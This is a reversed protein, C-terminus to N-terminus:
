VNHLGWRLARRVLVASEAVLALLAFAALFLELPRVQRSEGSFGQQSAIPTEARGMAAPNATLDSESADFYNAYVDVTRARSEVRYHGAEVARLRVRGWQDARITSVSGDPNMVKAGSPAPVTLEDGTAVIRINAPMALRRVVDVAAVLVQLRDPDLLLHNRVDFAIVGVQGREWDGVAALPFVDSQGSASANVTAKMWAPLSVIRAAFPAAPGPVAETEELPSRLEFSPVVGTVRFGAPLGQINAIGRPPYVLLLSNAQVGPILADHVVAIAFRKNRADSSNFKAPDEATVIFNNNVALLLRSLDDRAAADASLVLAPTASEAPAFAYRENDAALADNNLIRGRVLGGTKLPGFQVDLQEEPGLLFSSHSVLKGECDVAVEIDHSRSAFNRLVIHGTSAGPVGPDLSVIAFNDAPSGIPHFRVRPGLGVEKLVSEPPPRDAFLDIRQAERARILAAVLAARRATVATPRMGTITRRLAEHNASDAQLTRAGQAYTVVSLQDRQPASDVIRLAERKALDLRTGRGERAGMSAGVDFVLARSPGDVALAATRVFLGALALVMAALAGTELWFLLDTRLRRARVAPAPAAEFLMLSSVEITPRPRSRLYIAILVALSLGYLLNFPNLLGM